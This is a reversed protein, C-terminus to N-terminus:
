EAVVWVDKGLLAAIAVGTFIILVEVMVKVHWYVGSSVGEVAGCALEVDIADSSSVALSMCEGVMGVSMCAVNGVM